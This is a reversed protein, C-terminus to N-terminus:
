EMFTSDQADLVLKRIYNMRKFFSKKTPFLVERNKLCFLIYPIPRFKGKKTKTSLFCLKEFFVKNPNQPFSTLDKIWQYYISYRDINHSKSKQTISNSHQRYDTLCEPYYAISGLSAAVYAIWGDTYTSKPIPYLSPTIRRSFLINHAYIGILFVFAFNRNDNSPGLNRISSLKKNMLNGEEDMFQSDCFILNHKGVHDMLDKIKNPKWIDDQDSVSIYEGSALKIAQFLNQYHGLNIENRFFKVRPDQTFSRVINGTQDTSGDDSIIIELNTYTQNVISQIQDYLYKEGNYTCIIVSVKLM